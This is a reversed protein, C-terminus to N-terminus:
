AAARQVVEGGRLTDLLQGAMVDDRVQTLDGHVIDQLWLGVIEEFVHPDVMKVDIKLRSFYPNLWPGADFMSDPPASQEAGPRWVYIRDPAVLVVSAESPHDSRDM